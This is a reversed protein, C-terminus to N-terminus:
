SFTLNIQIVSAADVVKQPMTDTLRNGRMRSIVSTLSIAGVCDDELLVPAAICRIEEMREGRDVAYGQERISELEGRLEARDTITHATIPDLAVDDLYRERRSEEMHALLCKGIATCYLPVRKGPHTDLRVANEGYALYLYVAEFDENVAVNVLEGTEEALADLEPKAVDFLPLHRRTSEGMELLRLGLRYEGDESRLYGDRELTNLHSYVTSKPLELREALETVGMSRQDRLTELIRLTTQVAGIENVDEM